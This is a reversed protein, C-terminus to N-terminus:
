AKLKNKIDHVIQRMRKLHPLMENSYDQLTDIYTYLSHLGVQFGMSQDIQQSREMVWSLYNISKEDKGTIMDARLYRIDVGHHKKFDELLEKNIHPIFASILMTLRKKVERSQGLGEIHPFIKELSEMEQLFQQYLQADINKQIDPSQLYVQIDKLKNAATFYNSLENSNILYYLYTGVDVRNSLLAKGPLRITKLLKEIHEFEDKMEPSSSVVGEIFFPGFEKIVNEKPLRLIITAEGSPLRTDITWPSVGRDQVNNKIEILAPGHERGDPTVLKFSIILDTQLEKPYIRWGLEVRQGAQFRMKKTPSYLNIDVGSKPGGAKKISFTNSQAQVLFHNGEDYAQMILRYKNGVTFQNNITFTFSEKTRSLLGKQKNYLIIDVVDAPGTSLDGIFVGFGRLPTPHSFTFNVTVEEGQELEAKIENIAFVKAVAKQISFQQSIAVALPVSGGTSPYIELRLYCDQSSEAPSSRYTFDKRAYDLPQLPRWFEDPIDKGKNSFSVLIQDGPYLQGKTIKFEVRVSNGPEIDPIKGNNEFAIDINEKAYLDAPLSITQVIDVTSGDSKKFREVFTVDGPGPVEKGGLSKGNYFIDEGVEQIENGTM